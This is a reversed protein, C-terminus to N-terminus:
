HTPNNDLEAAHDAMVDFFNAWDSGSGYRKRLAGSRLNKAIERLVAETVELPKAQAAPSLDAM